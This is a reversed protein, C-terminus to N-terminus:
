GQGHKEKVIDLFDTFRLIVINERQDARAVVIPKREKAALTAQDLWDYVAIKARRKCEVMFQDLHIDGGGERTQALNRACDFGANRLIHVVEREYAAGKTRQSKSM